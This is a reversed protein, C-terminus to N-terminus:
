AIFLHDRFLDIYNDLWVLPAVGTLFSAVTFHRLSMSLGYYLPYGFMVAFYIIAPLVFGLPMLPSYLRGHQRVSKADPLDVAAELVVAQASSGLPPKSHKM